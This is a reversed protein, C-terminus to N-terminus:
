FERGPVTQCRPCFHTGRQGVKIREIAAGCRLCPEGARGYAALQSAFEGSRGDAQRYAADSLTTGGDAIAAKLVARIAQHLRQAEAPTLTHAQRLPHIGARWLAEDAYINGLGALFRQDLLLPKIQGRRGALMETLRQPTFDEELPEPGLDGLVEQPRTTLMMRGFKRADSFQLRGGDDLLLLVRSHRNDLCAESEVVLRGTMRLHVLLADGGSLGIVVWKGRRGVGAITQGVLGRAFAPPDPPVVSREWTVKVDVITRGTLAIRLGRAVTEVEPLEPMARGNYARGGRRDFGGQLGGVCHPAVPTGM